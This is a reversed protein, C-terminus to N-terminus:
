VIKVAFAHIGTIFTYFDYAGDYLNIQFTYTGPDLVEYARGSILLLVGVGATQYQNIYGWAQNAMSVGDRTIDRTRPVDYPSETRGYHVSFATVVVLSKVTTTLSVSAGSFWTGWSTSAYACDISVPGSTETKRGAGDVDRDLSLTQAEWAEAGRRLVQGETATPLKCVLGDSLGVNKLLTADLEDDGGSHHRSAHPAPPFLKKPHWM